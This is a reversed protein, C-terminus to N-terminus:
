SITLLNSFLVGGLSSPDPIKWIKTLKWRCLYYLFLRILDILIDIINAINSTKGLMM